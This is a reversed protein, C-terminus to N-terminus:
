EGDEANDHKRKGNVFIMDDDTGPEMDQGSSILKPGRRDLEYTFPQDWADNLDSEDQVYPGTWGNVGAPKELLAEIGMSTEPYRGVTTKYSVIATTLTGARTATEQVKAQEGTGLITPLIFGILGGLIGVVILIELLTFGQQSSIFRSNKIRGQYNM